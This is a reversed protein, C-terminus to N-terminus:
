KISLKQMVKWSDQNRHYYMRRYYLMVAWRNYYSSPIRMKACCCYLWYWVYDVVCREYLDCHWWSSTSRLRHEYCQQQSHRVVWHHFYQLSYHHSYRASLTTPIATWLIRHLFTLYSKWWLTVILHRNYYHACSALDVSVNCYYDCCCCCASSFELPIPSVMVMWVHNRFLSIELYMQSHRQEMRITCSYQRYIMM